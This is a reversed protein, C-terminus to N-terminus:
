HSAVKEEWQKIFNSLDYTAGKEKFNSLIVTAKEM